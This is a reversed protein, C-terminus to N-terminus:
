AHAAEPDLLSKNPKPLGETDYIEFESSYPAIQDLVAAADGVV